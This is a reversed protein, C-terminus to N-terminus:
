LLAKWDMTAYVEKSGVFKEGAIGLDEKTLIGDEGSWSRERLEDWAAMMVGMEQGWGPWVSNFAELSTQVYVAPKGTVESWDKLIQGTTSEEVAAKVFRGPLTLEPQRLIASTFIGVNVTVDGIGSVPTDPAATSLQVYQGSTKVFNPTFMPYQFNSGYYTIWFYTTKKWLEPKSRIYDDIQNKGTFHPIDWKGNSIKKGNPLTSWIYHELTSTKLAANALNIGQAVEIAIAKEPHQVDASFPEFFDTVAYIATSGEFAKILSQADNLDASVMEVGRAALAKANPSNPNRTLGRISYKGEKLAAEIVSRGQTGTSGVVTLLPAM